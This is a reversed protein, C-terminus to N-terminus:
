PNDQTNNPLLSIHRSARQILNRCVGWEFGGSNEPEAEYLLNRAFWLLSIAERLNNDPYKREYEPKHSM